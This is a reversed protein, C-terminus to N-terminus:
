SMFFRLREPWDDSRSSYSRRTLARAPMTVFKTAWVICCTLRCALRGMIIVIKVSGSARPLKSDDLAILSHSPVSIAASDESCGFIM